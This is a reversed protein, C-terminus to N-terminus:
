APNRSSIVAESKSSAFRAHCSRISSSSRKRQSPETKPPELALFTSERDGLSTPLSADFHPWRMRLDHATWTYACATAARSVQLKASIRRGISPGRKPARPLAVRLADLEIRGHAGTLPILSAGGTFLIPGGCEDTLIHADWHCLIAGHPECLAALALGNSATGTAVVFVDVKKAFVESVQAQLAATEPDGEFVDTIGPSYSALSELIQRHAYARGDSMFNL